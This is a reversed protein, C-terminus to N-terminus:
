ADNSLKFSLNCNSTFRLRRHALRKEDSEHADSIPSCPAKAGRSKSFRLLVPQKRLKWYSFVFKVVKPRGLSFKPFIGEHGGQFFDNRRGHDSQRYKLSKEQTRRLTLYTM